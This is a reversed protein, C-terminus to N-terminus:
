GRDITTKLEDTTTRTTMQEVIRAVRARDDDGARGRDNSTSSAKSEKEMAVAGSSYSNDDNPDTELSATVGDLKIATEWRSSRAVSIILNTLPIRSTPPLIIGTSCRQRHSVVKGNRSARLMQSRSSYRRDQFALPASTGATLTFQM